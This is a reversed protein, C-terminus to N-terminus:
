GVLTWVALAAVVVASVVGTALRGRPGAVAAGLAAGGGALLLQWSASAVTAAAVFLVAQGTGAVVERNGLVVAVFYVVTTPNVATLGVFVAYASWPRLRTPAPPGPAGVDRGGGRLAHVLTLAAVALLVAAAAVRLTGAVPALLGALAAGGAVALAAYVGDVTAVGLAGVAGVRWGARSSVAVLLAGVAGVPVAIAWGTVLGQLLM